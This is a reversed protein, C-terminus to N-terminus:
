QAGGTGEPEILCARVPTGDAAIKLPLACLIYTGPAAKSLDLHELVACQASLLIRHVEDDGVSMGDTGILRVGADILAQAQRTDLAAERDASGKILVREANSSFQQDASEVVRCEGILVSLPIDAATQGGEIYHSPADLHTGSHSGMSLKTLAYGDSDITAAQELRVKPDGEYTKTQENLEATIDIIRM